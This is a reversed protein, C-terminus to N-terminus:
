EDAVIRLIDDLVFRLLIGVARMINPGKSYTQRNQRYIDTTYRNMHDYKVANICIQGRRVVDTWHGYRDTDELLQGFENEDSWM